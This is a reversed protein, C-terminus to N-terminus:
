GENTASALENLKMELGDRNAIGTGSDLAKQYAARAATEDGAAVQLDGRVEEILATFSEPYSSPLVKLGAEANGQVASIRALRAKAVIVVDDLESNDIVWQLRTAAADLNGQEVASRAATLNTYAAYLTGKHEKSITDALSAVKDHEGARIADLSQSYMDSAQVAQKEQQSKWFTWGGILAAGIVVGLIVARGNERWWDKLAEVQQEETEYQM